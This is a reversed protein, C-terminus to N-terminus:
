KIKSYLDDLAEKVNTVNSNSSNTYSINESEYYIKNISADKYNYNTGDYIAATLLGEEASPENYTVEFNGSVEYWTGANLTTTSTITTCEKPSEEEGCSKTVAKNITGKRDTKVFYRPNEVDTSNFEVTIKQEKLYGSEPIPEPNNTYSVTAKKLISTATSGTQEKTIGSNNKTTIKYYYTKDQKVGSIVCKNEKVTGISGYTNDEGYECITSEIGSELDEAGYPVTISNTTKTIAGLVLTPNTTDINVISIDKTNSYKGESNYRATITVPHLPTAMKDIILENTYEEFESEVEEDREFDYYAIKYELKYDVNNNEFTVKKSTTWKDNDEVVYKIEGYANTKVTKSEEKTVGSKNEVKITIKYETDPTLDEFIHSKETTKIYEEENIKYYYNKIIGGVSPSHANVVVILKYLSSRINFIDIVPEEFDNSSLDGKSINTKNGDSSGSYEGDSADLKINDKCIKLEGETPIKGKLNLDKLPYYTKEDRVTVKDVDSSFSFYRCETIGGTMEEKVQYIDVAKLVSNLTQEFSAKKTKEIVNIVTPVAILSVVSLIIIVALLEILTFGKKKM